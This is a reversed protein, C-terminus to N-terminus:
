YIFLEVKRKERPGDLEVFFLSQWRGLSLKGAIVPIMVESGLLMARLHSFGNARKYEDDPDLKRVTFDDHHYYIDEPVIRRLLALADKMLGPEKENICVASTTHLTRVLVFGDKVEHRELSDQVSKSIDYFKTQEDTQIILNERIM